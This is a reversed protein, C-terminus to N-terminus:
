AAGSQDGHSVFDMFLGTGMWRSCPELPTMLLGSRCYRWGWSLCGTRTGRQWYTIRAKPLDARRSSQLKRRRAILPFPNEERFQSCGM